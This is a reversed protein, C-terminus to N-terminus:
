FTVLDKLIEEVPYGLVEGSKCKTITLSFHNLNESNEIVYSVFKPATDLLYKGKIQLYNINSVDLSIETHGAIEVEEFQLKELRKGNVNRRLIANIM